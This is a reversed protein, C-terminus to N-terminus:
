LLEPPPDRLEYRSAARTRFSDMAALHQLWHFCQPPCSPTAPCLCADVPCECEWCLGADVFAKRMKAEEAAAVAERAATMAAVAGEAAVFYAALAAEIEAVAPSAMRALWAFEPSM